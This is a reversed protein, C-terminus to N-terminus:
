RGKQFPPIGHVCNFASRRWLDIYRDTGIEHRVAGHKGPLNGLLVTFAELHITDQIDTLGCRHFGTTLSVSVGNAHVAFLGVQKELTAGIQGSVM